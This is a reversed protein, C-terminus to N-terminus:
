IKKHRAVGILGLLGSGFLWVTAPIPVITVSWNDVGGVSQLTQGTNSGGNRTVYGFRIPSGAISFDPNNTGGIAVFDTATLVSNIDNWLTDVLVLGNNNAEYFIGDQEVLFRFGISNVQPASDVKADMEFAISNNAGQASLDYSIPTFLHAFRIQIGDVKVQWDHITERYAGPNGGSIQM